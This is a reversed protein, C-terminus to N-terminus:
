LCSSRTDPLRWVASAGTIVEAEERMGPDDQSVPQGSLFEAVMPLVAADGLLGGHFASVVIVSAPLSCDPLTVADALPIVTLWRISGGGSSADAVVDDFYRAGVQSVSSLLAQAGAPGYPSISGVLHDLESLADGSVAADASASGGLQDPSVIPSLLVIASLPLGPHRALMAYVGLTGESEAVLAVPRGSAAHLSEVQAAVKDGLVPLSVNTAAPGSPIAKGRADMGAYSFQRVPMPALLGRLQNAADCCSSGFGGVVLVASRAAAAAVAPSAASPSAASPAAARGKVAGGVGAQAVNAPGSGLAASSVSSSSAAAPVHTVPVEITGTFLLRAFIIVLAFVAVASLPAYPLGLVVRAPVSALPRPQVRAALRALGYWARANVLGVAAAVTLGGAVPLRTILPGAATAAVFSVLLWAVARVPPLRRWWSRMVGGHSLATVMGLMVPFAALFPWSFPLVAM